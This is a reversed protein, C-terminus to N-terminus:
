VFIFDTSTWGSNSHDSDAIDIAMDAIKDGNVDVEIVYGDATTLARVSGLGSFAVDKGTFHLGLVNGPNMASFDIYDAIREYDQIVDRGAMAVTSDKVSEYCFRDTYGDSGGILTDRGLGGYIRDSAAGGEIRDNGALGYLQDGGDGGRLLNAAANGFMIDAGDGGYAVEFGSIKDVGTENGHAEAANYLVASGVTHHAKSDLNIYVSQTADSANYTDGYLDLIPNAGANGGGNVKDIGLNSLVEVADFTDFGDGLNYTDSDGSDFVQDRYKGGTFTDDGNGLNITGTVNGTNTFVDKGGGLTVNGEITGSNKVKDDGNALTLSGHLVGSNTVTTAASSLGQFIATGGNVIGSNTVTAADFLEIGFVAGDIIGTNKLTSSSTSNNILVGVLNGHIDGDNALNLAHSSLIGYGTGEVHGTAGVTIKSISGAPQATVLNIGSGYLSSVLGKVTVTWPGNSLNLGDDTFGGSVLDSVIGDVAVTITGPTFWFDGAFYPNTSDYTKSFAM